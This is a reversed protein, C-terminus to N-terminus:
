AASGAKEEHDDLPTESPAIIGSPMRQRLEDEEGAMVAKLRAIINGRKNENSIKQGVLDTVYFTDIVKEGFTTIRASQIDLSLDSLVATVESLLGTRDLGEVEVVTFKNSLSNSITASPSVVFAKSKRKLKTRNAIVEPLLKRGSLVDEIMKGITAARRLEDADDPFERSVHITDLARGDATTFIQANVINAGSAACAGAIVALLRPHDPSLVTIETIAHFSDTRVMTALVQGAKDTQRIFGTHRIQDELSVSLLYPQYHLKVYAERDHESWDSLANFLAEAAYKARENRSVESFGGALLLETEYYLTRLLQGKWGNWVGPGVARIDCVTLIVLMKLRELSQVRDAFDIITKRDNLDRTQAVMSMTLHEEILWVVLETQKPSLGFRAALKRAVRAGAISHDELRGKAVDHLLVAVYLAERDEVHPMLKNVLPHIEEAKGKDIESLIAVARILHEDVTYHHYMSFQMMAVIKGFEPIFRGLVGAENMRRLILAPDRPSTLISLFLRNAEEDERLRIDILSLSRTVLKLADPHFELNNIDAVHFLRILSVPDRKFVDPNALAIRGRDEVFEISGAIKRSRHTFRSLVGSLGPTAKAQEDELAACLIRTLDGVDKTVLFYHKMFREVASLGPRAHYGLAEAIERQIDFSLREEAKNTLFHMHCRVAWLFDDAKEFLRYESKSLVGLKVLEITNRVHYYYKSIWFLTHLDRLGGKGEKVNPEVLYRTDGAKRHREDREALKAAVFEPGTGIVIEKDFRGELETALPRYGCIFRTELIATRITMDSKSLRICEEITRTAHGVKFGMDWLVYLVFEVAKHTDDEPKPQFLFLLDIDSGPALTDRGYGGVAAVAFKDKQGPYVQTVAVDYLITILQDQLWSIEHACDLGSGHAFFRLRARERAEQSARKLPPLLANRLDIRTGKHAAIVADCEARVATVDLIGPYDIVAMRRRGLHKENDAMRQQLAESKTAM